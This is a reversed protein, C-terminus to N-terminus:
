HVEKNQNPPNQPKSYPWQDREKVYNLAQEIVAPTDGLAGLGRNCRSCLIGRVRGTEHCHDVVFQNWRGGPKSTQCIACARGQQELLQEFDELSMRYRERLKIIRLRTGHRAERTYLVDAKARCSKCESRLGDPATRNRSFRILPQVQSCRRCLKSEEM